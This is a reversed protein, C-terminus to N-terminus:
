GRKGSIYSVLKKFVGNAKPKTDVKVATPVPVVHIFDPTAVMKVKIEGQEKRIHRPGHRAIMEAVHKRALERKARKENLRYETLM